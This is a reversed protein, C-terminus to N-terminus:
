SRSRYPDLRETHSSVLRPHLHTWGVFPLDDLGVTYSAFASVAGQRTFGGPDVAVVLSAPALGYGAGVAYGQAEGTERAEEPSASLAAARAAERAVASVATRAQVVRGVGIVCLATTLLLPVVLATEVIASGREATSVVPGPMPASSGEGQAGLHGAASLIGRLRSVDAPSLPYRPRNALIAPAAAELYVAPFPSGRVDLQARPHPFVLMGEIWLRTRSCLDPDRGELYRRLARVNRQVQAVPDGAYADYLTGLAGEKVHRWAGHEDRVVRGSFNKTELVFLGTPGAVLHDIDGGSNPLKLNQFIVYGDPGGPLQRALADVVTEEGSIGAEVAARRGPYTVFAAAGGARRPRLSRRAVLCLLVILVVLLVGLTHAGVGPLTLLLLGAGVLGTWVPWPLPDKVRAVPRDRGPRRRDALREAPARPFRIV